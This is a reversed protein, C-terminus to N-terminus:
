QDPAGSRAISTKDGPAIRAPVDVGFDAVIERGPTKLDHDDIGIRFGDSPM